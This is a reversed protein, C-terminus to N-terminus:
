GCERSCEVLLQRARVLEPRSGAAALRAIEEVGDGLVVDHLTEALIKGREASWGAFLREILPRIGKSAVAVAGEGALPAAVTVGFDVVHHLVGAAAPVAAAGAGFLALTMVPRAVSGVTLGTLVAKVMGPNKAAFRDLEDRVFTRYDHSVLPLAAHRRELDAYWASRDASALRPGLKAALREDRRCADDLRDIFDALARKLAELETTAFDEQREEATRGIGIQQATWSVGRGILRYGGSVFLDVGSRRPELWAWIEDWVIQRPAAPLEVRVRGERELFQQSERWGTAAQDIGDLWTALGRGPDLVVRMAGAMAQRKIRDFDCEALREGLSVDGGDPTLEAVPHLTIRGAEAAAFDHPAAYVAAPAVGTEATFTGLWGVLRERQRPWDVMNFVVIVTKGAAAAASFFDRVAADNYKQQTLVAVIVDAADRVLEARHWNERLTGDIDPTDLVVLRAPQTGGPDERWVLVDSAAADLADEDSQWPVPRFGPFLAALDIRGAVGAALSAVPHLTRAAEPVSRSIEAGVLTNTILSKGTNTGGCVAAVLLPERAVQPKLKGFLSGHWATACPDAAGLTAALPVLRDVQECLDAISVAWVAFSPAAPTGESVMQRRRSRKDDQHAVVGLGVVNM